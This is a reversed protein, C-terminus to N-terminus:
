FFSQGSGFLLSRVYGFFSRTPMLLQSRFPGGLQYKHVFAAGVGLHRAQTPACQAPLSHPRADRLSRILRARQDGAHAQRARAGQSKSPGMFPSINRVQTCCPRASVRCGPSTTMRSLKAVCAAVVGLQEQRRFAGKLGDGGGIALTEKKASSVSCLLHFHKLASRAVLRNTDIYPTSTPVAAPSPLLFPNRSKAGIGHGVPPPLWSM